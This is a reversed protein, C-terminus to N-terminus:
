RGAASIARPTPRPRHPVPLATNDVRWQGVAKAQPGHGKSLQAYEQRRRRLEGRDALPDRGVDPRHLM